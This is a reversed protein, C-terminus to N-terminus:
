YIIILIKTIVYWKLIYIIKTHINYIYTSPHLPVVIKDQNDNTKRIFTACIINNQM